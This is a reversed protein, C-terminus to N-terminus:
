CPPTPGIGCVLRSISSPPAVARFKKMWVGMQQGDRLSSSVPMYKWLMLASGVAGPCGRLALQM